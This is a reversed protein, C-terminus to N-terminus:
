SSPKTAWGPLPPPAPGVGPPHDMVIHGPSVMLRFKGDGRDDVLDFTFACGTHASGLDYSYAYPKGHIEWRFIWYLYATQELLKKSSGSEDFVAGPITLQRHNDDPMFASVSVDDPWPWDIQKGDVVQHIPRFKADELGPIAWGDSRYWRTEAAPVVALGCQAFAPHFASLVGVAAM